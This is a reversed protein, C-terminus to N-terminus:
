SNDNLQFQFHLSVNMCYIKKFKRRKGSVEYDPEAAAAAEEHSAAAAAESNARNYLVVTVINGPLCLAMWVVLAQLLFVSSKDLAPMSM